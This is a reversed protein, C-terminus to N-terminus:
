PRAGAAGASGRMQQFLAFVKPSTTKPDLKLDPQAALAQAFSARAADDRGLAVNATAALVDIQARLAGIRPADPATALGKRARDLGALADEFRAQHLLQRAGDLRRRATAVLSEVDDREPAPPLPAIPQDLTELAVAVSAAPATPAPSPRSDIAPRHWRLPVTRAEAARLAADDPTLCLAHAYLAYATVPESEELRRAIRSLEAARLRAWRATLADAKAARPLPAPEGPWARCESVKVSGVAGATAPVVAALVVALAIATRRVSLVIPTRRASMPRETRERRM